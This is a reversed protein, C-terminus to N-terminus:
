HMYVSKMLPDKNEAFNLIIIFYNLCIFSIFWDTRQPIQIIKLAHHALMNFM